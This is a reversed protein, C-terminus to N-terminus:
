SSKLRGKLRNKWFTLRKKVTAPSTSGSGKYRKICNEVGLVGYVDDDILRSFKKLEDVSFDTLAKGARIAERVIKGVVEHAQRFPMGKQVLYEALATADLHGKECSSKIKDVNFGANSVVLRLVELSASVTSSMDFVAVKDEQMDRNYSLPLAKMLTFLTVLGGYVRASKARVLELVDPNKKQPM